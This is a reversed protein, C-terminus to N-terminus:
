LLELEIHDKCLHIDKLYENKIIIGHDKKSIYSNEIIHDHILQYFDFHIFGFQVDGKIDLVIVDNVHTDILVDVVTEVHYYQLYLKISIGGDLKCEVDKLIIQQYDFFRYYLLWIMKTLSNLDIIM